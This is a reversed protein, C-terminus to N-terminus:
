LGHNKMYDIQEKINKRVAGADATMLQNRLRDLYDIIYEDFTAISMALPEDEELTEHYSYIDELRYPAVPSENYEAAFRTDLLWGEDRNGRTTAVPYWYRGRPHSSGLVSLIEEHAAAMEGPKMVILGNFLPGSMDRYAQTSASNDDSNQLVDIAEIFDLDFSPIGASEILEYFGRPLRLGIKGELERYAERYEGAHAFRIFYDPLEPFSSEAIWAMFQHIKEAAKM